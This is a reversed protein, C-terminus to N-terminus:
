PGRPGRARRAPPGSEDVASGYSITACPTTGLSSHQAVSLDLATKAAGLGFGLCVTFPDDVVGARLAVGAPLVLEAGVRRLSEGGAREEELLLCLSSAFPIGLGWRFRGGAGSAAVASAGTSNPVVAACGVEWGGAIQLSLGLSTSMEKAFAGEDDRLSVLEFGAGFAIGSAGAVSGTFILHSESFPTPTELTEFTVSAGVRKSCGRLSVACADLGEIGYPRAWSARLEYGRAPFAAARLPSWSGGVVSVGGLASARAGPLHLGSAGRCSGPSVAVALALLAPVPASVRM